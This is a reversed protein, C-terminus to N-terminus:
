RLVDAIPGEMILASVMILASFDVINTIIWFFPSVSSPLEMRCAGYVVECIGIGCKFTGVRLM